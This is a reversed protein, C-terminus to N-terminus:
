FYRVAGNEPREVPGNYRTLRPWLVLWRRRYYGRRAPCKRTPARGAERFRAARSFFGSLAFDRRELGAGLLKGAHASSKGERPM